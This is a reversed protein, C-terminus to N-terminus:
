ESAANGDSTPKETPKIDELLDDRSKILNKVKWEPIEYLWGRHTKTFSDATDRALLKAEKAKLEEDSEIRNEKVIPTSDLYDAKVKVYSKEDGELVDFTYAVQKTLYCIVSGAPNLTQAVETDKQVDQFTLSAFASFLSKAQNVALQKSEPVNDLIYTPEKDNKVVKLTYNSDSHAVVVKEIEDAKISVLEKNVYDLASTSVTPVQRAAFVNSSSLLRVYTQPMGAAGEVVAKAGVIIGTILAGDRDFFKVVNQANDETVQLSKHNESNDTVLESVRLDALNVLLTNIKNTDAPYDDKNAIVFQIGRRVLTLPDDGTGIQISAVSSLDLGQILFSEEFTKRQPRTAKSHIAQSQVAAWTVTIVAIISLIILNKNSM